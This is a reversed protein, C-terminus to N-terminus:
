VEWIHLRHTLRLGAFNELADHLQELKEAWFETEPHKELEKGVAEIKSHLASVIIIKNTATLKM